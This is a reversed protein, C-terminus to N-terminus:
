ESRIFHFAIGWIFSLIFAILIYEFLKVPLHVLALLNFSHALFTALSENVKFLYEFFSVYKLYQVLVAGLLTLILTSFAHSAGSKLAM